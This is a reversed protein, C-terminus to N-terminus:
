NVVRSDACNTLQYKSHLIYSFFAWGGGGWGVWREKEVVVEWKYKLTLYRQWCPFLVVFTVLLSPMTLSFYSSPFVNRIKCRETIQKQCWLFDRNAPFLLLLHWKAVTKKLYNKWTTFERWLYVESHLSIKSAFDQPLTLLFFQATTCPFLTLYAHLYHFINVLGLTLCNQFHYRMWLLVRLLVVNLGEPLIGQINNSKM